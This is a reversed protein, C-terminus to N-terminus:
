VDLQKTKSEANEKELMPNGIRCDVQCAFHLLTCNKTGNIDKQPAQLHAFQENEEKGKKENEFLRYIIKGHKIFQEFLKKMNDIKKKAVALEFSQTFIEALEQSTELADFCLSWGMSDFSNGTLVFNFLIQFKRINGTEIAYPLCIQSLLEWSVVDLVDSATAAKLGNSTHSTHAELLAFINNMARKNDVLDKAKHDPRKSADSCWAFKLLIFGFIGDEGCMIKVFELRRQRTTGTNIYKLFNEQRKFHMLACILPSKLNDYLFIRDYPQERRYLLKDCRCPCYCRSTELIGWSCSNKGQVAKLSDPHAKIIAQIVETSFGRACAWQLPLPDNAKRKRTSGTCALGFGCCCRDCSCQWCDFCCRSMGLEHGCGNGTCTEGCCIRDKKYCRGCCYSCLHMNCSVYSLKAVNNTKKLLDLVQLSFSAYLLLPLM